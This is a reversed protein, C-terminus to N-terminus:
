ELTGNELDALQRGVVDYIALRVRSRVPLDFSLEAGSRTPNHHGRRLAIAAGMGVSRTPTSRTTPTGSRDHITISGSRLTTTPTAGDLDGPQSDYIAGGSKADWIKIRLRDPTH